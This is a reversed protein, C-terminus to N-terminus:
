IFWDQVGTSRLRFYVYFVFHFALIHRICLLLKFVVAVLVFFVVTIFIKTGPAGREGKEGPHGTRGPAGYHGPEGKPGQYGPAGPKGISGPIGPYGRAGKSGPKGVDGPTGPIGTVYM